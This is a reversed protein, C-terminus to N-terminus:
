CGEFELSGEGIFCGGVGVGIWVLARGWGVEIKM